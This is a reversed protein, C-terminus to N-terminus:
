LRSFRAQGRIVVIADYTYRALNRIIQTKTIVLSTRSGPIGTTGPVIERDVCEHSTSAFRLGPYLRLTFLVSTFELCFPSPLSSHRM